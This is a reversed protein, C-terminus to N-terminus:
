EAPQILGELKNRSQGAAAIDDESAGAKKAQARLDDLSPKDSGKEKQQEQKGKGELREMWPALEKESQVTFEVGPRVRRGGIFGMKLARVRISM